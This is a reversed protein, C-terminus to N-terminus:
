NRAGIHRIEGGRRARGRERLDACAILKLGPFRSINQMYIGSITGCGIIGVGLPAM